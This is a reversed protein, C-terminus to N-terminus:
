GFRRLKDLLERFRDLAVFDRHLLDYDQTRNYIEAISGDIGYEEILGAIYDIYVEIHSRKPLGRNEEQIMEIIDMMMEQHIYEQLRDDDLESLSEFDLGRLMYEALDGEEDGCIRFYSCKIRNIVSSKDMDNRALELIYLIERILPIEILRIDHDLSCPIGEEEFIRCIMDGYESPDALVVGIDELAIGDMHYRKIREAIKKLELYGNPARIMNIDPNPDLPGADQSLITNAMREYYTPEGEDMHLITFGLDKLEILTNTLTDFSEERHFPMNIHIPVGIDVIRSLLGMEQPRFDFFQDIIILDLGDFYSSDQELRSLAEGFSGERDVLTNTCLEREYEEYILGIERYFPTDPSLEMYIDPTILSRKLEGIIDILIKIFGKKSAIDGYYNLRDEEKLIRLVRSILVGKIQEDIYKHPSDGLIRDVMNDFTFTNIDFVNEAERILRQRYRNLLQGNPLIYYFKKGKNEKVYGLAKKFLREGSDNNFSGLYVIKDGM